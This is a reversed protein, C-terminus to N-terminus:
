EDPLVGLRRLQELVYQVARNPDSWQEEEYSMPGLYIDGRWSPPIQGPAGYGGGYFGFKSAIHPTENEEVGFFMRRLMGPGAIGYTLRGMDLPAGEDKVNVDVIYHSNGARAVDYVTLKIPVGLRDLGHALGVLVAGRREITEADVSGSASVNVVIHVSRTPSETRHLALMHEPVGQLYLGVDVTGGVTDNYPRPTPVADEVSRAIAEAKPALIEVAKDWGNLFRDEAVEYNPDGHWSTNDGYTYNRRSAREWDSCGHTKPRWRNFGVLETVDRFSRRYVTRDEWGPDAVVIREPHAPQGPYAEYKSTEHDKPM